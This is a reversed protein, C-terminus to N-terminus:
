KGNNFKFLPLNSYHPWTKMLTYLKNGPSTFNPSADRHGCLNYDPSIKGIRVGCTIISKIANLAPDIPLVDDFNGMVAISISVNNFGRTHAGVRDWGRAEYAVGDEGVMYSYGIDDWGNTDMHRNQIRQIESTCMISNCCRDMATHHLFIIGIPVPMYTVSRTTRANWGSRSLIVACPDAPKLGRSGTQTFHIAVVVAAIFACITLVIAVIIATRSKRFTCLQNHEEIGSQIESGRDRSYQHVLSPTDNSIYDPNHYSRLEHM